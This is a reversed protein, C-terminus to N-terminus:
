EHVYVPRDSETVNGKHICVIYVIPAIFHQLIYLRYAKIDTLSEREQCCKLSRDIFADQVNLVASKIATSVHM